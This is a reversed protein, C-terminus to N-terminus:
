RGQFIDEDVEVGKITIYFRRDGAWSFENSIQSYGDDVIKYFQGKYGIFHGMKIGSVIVNTGQEKTILGLEELHDLYVHATFKGMGKKEIGGSVQYTPEEVEVNIRGFIQIEPLWVKRKAQGYLKHVQTKQLDIRYLLFSEQLVKETIERGVSSFFNREKEGFFIQIGKPKAEHADFNEPNRGIETLDAM